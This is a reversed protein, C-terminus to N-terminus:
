RWADPGGAALDRRAATATRGIRSDAQPEARLHARHCGSGGNLWHVRVPQREDRVCLTGGRRDNVGPPRECGASAAGNVRAQRVQGKVPQPSTRFATPLTELPGRRSQRRPCRVCIGILRQASCAGHRRRGAGDSGLGLGPFRDQVTQGLLSYAFPSCQTRLRRAQSDLNINRM